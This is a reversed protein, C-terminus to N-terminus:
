QIRVYNDLIYVYPKMREEENFEKVEGTGGCMKDVVAELGSDYNEIEKKLFYNYLENVISDNFEKKYEIYTDYDTTKIEDPKFTVKKIKKIYEYGEIKNTIYKIMDDWREYKIVNMLYGLHNNKIFEEEYQNYPELYEDNFIYIKSKAKRKLITGYRFNMNYKKMKDYIWYEAIERIKSYIASYIEKDICEDEKGRYYDNYCGFFNYITNNDFCVDNWYSNEMYYKNKLEAKYLFHNFIYDFEIKIKTKKGSGERAGGHKNTEYDDNLIETILFKQSTPNIFSFYKKWHEIQKKRAGGKKVPENLIACIEKHKYEKNVELAYKM